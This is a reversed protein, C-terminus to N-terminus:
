TTSKELRLWLMNLSIDKSREMYGFNTPKKGCCISHDRLTLCDKLPEELHADPDHTVTVIDEVESSSLYIRYRWDGEILKPFPSVHSFSGLNFDFASFDNFSSVNFAELFAEQEELDEYYLKWLRRRTKRVLLYRVVIVVVFILALVVFGLNIQSVM